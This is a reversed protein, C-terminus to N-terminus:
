GEAEKSSSEEKQKEPKDSNEAGGKRSDTTYFGPGKFIIPVPSFLRQAGNQCEPCAVIPEDSFSQRLEFKLNCKPCLYQYIPM